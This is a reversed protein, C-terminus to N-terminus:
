WLLNVPKVPPIRFDRTKLYGYFSAASQPWLVSVLEMMLRQENCNNLAGSGEVLRQTYTSSLATSDASKLLWCIDPFAQLFALVDDNAARSPISWIIKWIPM